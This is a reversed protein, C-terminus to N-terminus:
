IPEVCAPPHATVNPWGQAMMEAAIRVTQLHIDVSDQIQRAYGGAIVTAVPIGARRCFEFVLRDREALGAKSMSFGGLLDDKYPDAGALYVALDADAMDLARRVGAELAKLYAADEIGDDLGIDLDSPEKRLPFNQENHISITFITFHNPDDSLSKSSSDPYSTFTADQPSSAKCIILIAM